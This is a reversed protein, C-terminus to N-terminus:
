WGASGDEVKMAQALAAANRLMFGGDRRVLKVLYRAATPTWDADVSLLKELQRPDLRGNRTAKRVLRSYAHSQFTLMHHEELYSGNMVDNSVM